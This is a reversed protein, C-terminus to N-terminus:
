KFRIKSARIRSNAEKKLYAKKIDTAAKNMRDMLQMQQKKTLKPLKNNKDLRELIEDLPDKEEM